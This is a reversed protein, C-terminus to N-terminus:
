ESFFKKQPSCLSSTQSFVCFFVVELTGLHSKQALLLEEVSEYHHVPCPLAVRALVGFHDSPCLMAGSPTAVVAKTGVLSCALREMGAGALLVRDYRRQKGSKSTITATPNQLADFTVRGELDCDVFNKPDPHEDREPDYNFDGALIRLDSKELREVIVALQKDRKEQFAKSVGNAGDNSTGDFYNSSLHVAAIALSHTGVVLEAVMCMKMRSFQMMSARFPLKSLVVQGYEPLTLSDPGDSVWYKRAFEQKLLLRLWPATVEQLCIVDAQSESLISFIHPIREASCIKSADYKDFLVNYTLM